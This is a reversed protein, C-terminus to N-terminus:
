CAKAARTLRLSGVLSALAAFAHCGASRAGSTTEGSVMGCTRNPRPMLLLVKHVVDDHFFDPSDPFFQDLAVTSNVAVEFM